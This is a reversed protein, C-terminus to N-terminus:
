ASQLAVQWSKEELDDWGGGPGKVWSVGLNQSLMWCIFRGWIPQVWGVTM